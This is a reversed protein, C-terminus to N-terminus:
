QHEGDDTHTCADQDYQGEIAPGIPALREGFRREEAVAGSHLVREATFLTPEPKGPEVIDGYFHASLLAAANEVAGVKLRDPEHRM